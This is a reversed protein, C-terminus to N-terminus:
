RVKYKRGAASGLGGGVGFAAYMPQEALLVEFVNRDFGLEFALTAPEVLTYLVIAFPATHCAVQRM